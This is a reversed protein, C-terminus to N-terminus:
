EARPQGGVSSLWVKLEQSGYKRILDHLEAPDIEVVVKGCHLCAKARELYGVATNAGIMKKLYPVELGDAEFGAEYEGYGGVNRGRVVSYLGCFPCKDHFYM